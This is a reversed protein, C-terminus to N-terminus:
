AIVKMTGIQTKTIGANTVTIRVKYQGVAFTATDDEIVFKGDAAATDDITPTQETGNSHIFKCAITAASLDVPFGIDDVWVVQWYISDGKIVTATNSNGYDPVPLMDQIDGGAEPVRIRGFSYGKRTTQTVEDYEYGTVDYSTPYEYAANPLLEVTFSGDVGTEVSVPQSNLIYNDSAAVGSLTFVIVGNSLVSGDPKTMFGEVPATTLPM